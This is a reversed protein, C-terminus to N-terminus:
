GAPARRTAERSVHEPRGRPVGGRGPGVRVPLANVTPVASIAPLTVSAFLAILKPGPESSMAVVLEGFGPWSM